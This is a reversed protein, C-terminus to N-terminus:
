WCNQLLIIVSMWNLVIFTL